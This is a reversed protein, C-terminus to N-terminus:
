TYPQVKGVLGVAFLKLNNVTPKPKPNLKLFM